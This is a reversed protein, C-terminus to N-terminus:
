CNFRSETPAFGINKSKNWLMAELRSTDEKKYTIFQVKWRPATLKNKLERIYYGM